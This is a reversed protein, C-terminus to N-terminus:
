NKLKYKDIKYWLSRGSIKLVAAAKTKNGGSRRLAEAIMAEEVVDIAKNLDLDDPCNLDSQASVIQQRTLRDFPFHQVDLIAGRSLVMAREIVNRLERVNGPWNYNSLLNIADDCIGNAALGADTLERIFHAVLVPIDERYSRLAPLEISFVNIRYYLDERLKGSEIAHRPDRNTAAIVRIDLPIRANSGLREVVNDQL